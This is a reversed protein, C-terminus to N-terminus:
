VSIDFTAVFESEGDPFTIWVDDPTFAYFDTVEPNLEITAQKRPPQALQELLVPVHREYVHADTINFTIVGVKLNTVQAIMMLLVKYQFVNFPNGPGMDNSRIGVEVNLVDDVTSWTTNWVCPPLAMKDIDETNWLSVVNQRSGPNVKLKIILHDVSDVLVADKKYPAFKPDYQLKHGSKSLEELTVCRVRRGLQYGYAPGITDYWESEPDTIFWEDWIKVNASKFDERRNTKYQWFLLMEMIATRAFLKKSSLIGSDAPMVIFKQSLLKRTTAIEGDSKYTGRVKTPDTVVGYNIIQRVISAYQETYTSTSPYLSNM